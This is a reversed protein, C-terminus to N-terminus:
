SEVAVIQGKFRFDLRTFSSLGKAPAVSRYFEQWNRLKTEYNGKGFVLWVNGERTLATIGQTEDWGIESISLNRVKDRKLGNLFDVSQRFGESHLTDGVPNVNFGFLLPLNPMNRTPIPMKVGEADVLAMSDGHILVALPVREVLRVELRGTPSVYIRANKVFSISEVQGILDLMDVSDAVMGTYINLSERIEDPNTLVSGKVQVDRIVTNSSYYFGAYLSAGIILVAVIFYLMNRGFTKGSKSRRSNKPKEATKRPVGYEIKRNNKNRFYSRDSPAM